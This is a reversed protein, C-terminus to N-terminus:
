RAGAREGGASSYRAIALGGVMCVGGLVLLVAYSTTFEFTPAQPEEASVVKRISRGDLLREPAFEPEPIPGFTQAMVTVAVTNTTGDDRTGSLRSARLVPLGDQRDYSLEGRVTSGDEKVYSFTRTAYHDDAMVEITYSRWSLEPKGRNELRVRVLRQGNETVRDLKSVVVGFIDVFNTLDEAVQLLVAALGGSPHNGECKSRARRYAREPSLRPDVRIEWPDGPGQRHAEVSHDPHALYADEEEPLRCRLRRWAGSRALEYLGTWGSEAGGPATTTWSLNTTLRVHEYPALLLNAAAQYEDLFARWAAPVVDPGLTLRALCRSAPTEGRRNRDIAMRFDAELQDLSKGLVRQCDASFSAQRCTSYLELFRDPGFTELLFQVLPAGQDYVTRHHSAYWEPGTLDRLLPANGREAESWARVSLDIPATGMNAQAWGEILVTPPEFSVLPAFAFMVCHAMEHRDLWTLGEADPHMEGPLSGSCLGNLGFQKGWLPGRVWHIRGSFTRGLRAELGRVHRDMATVQARALASDMPASSMVLKAGYTRQPYQFRAVLDLISEAMTALLKTGLNLPTQGGSVMSVGYVILSSLFLMPALGLLLRSLAQRRNPGRALRWGAGILLALGAALMLVLMATVPLFDPHWVRGVLQGGLLLLLCLWCAWVLLALRALMLMNRIRLNIQM